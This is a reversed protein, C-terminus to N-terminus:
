EKDRIGIQTVDIPVFGLKLDPSEPQLRYDGHEPNVFLPDAIVSHSDYGLEQRQKLQNYDGKSNFFVNYDAKQVISTPEQPYTMFTWRYPFSFQEPDTTCIINRTVCNGSTYRDLFEGGIHPPKSFCIQEKCDVFINNQITINKAYNAHFACGAHTVVNGCVLCNASLDDLYIGIGRNPVLIRGDMVGCGPIDVVHFLAKLHFPEVLTSNVFDSPV